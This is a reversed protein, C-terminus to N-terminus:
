PALLAVLLPLETAVRRKSQHQQNNRKSIRLMLLIMRLTVMPRNVEKKKSNSRERGKRREKRSRRGLTQQFRSTREV